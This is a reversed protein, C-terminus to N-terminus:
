RNNPRSIQHETTDIVCDNIGCSLLQQELQNQAETTASVYVKLLSPSGKHLTSLESRVANTHELAQYTFWDFADAWSRCLNNKYHNSAVWLLTCRPEVETAIIHEIMPKVVAFHEDTTIFVHHFGHLTADDVTFSGQPGEIVIRERKKLSMIADCLDSQTTSLHFELYGAECPCTAIPLLQPTCGPVTLRAYQGALYWLAKGRLIKLRVVLTNGFTETHCIRTNLQQQPIDEAITAESVEIELPTLARHSCLLVVGANKEATTVTYDHFRIQEVEGHVVRARCEGCSGNSCRYPLAIGASLGSKLVSSHAHSVFQKGSPLLTVEPDDPASM